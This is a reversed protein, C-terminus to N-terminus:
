SEIQSEIGSQKEFRKKSSRMEQIGKEFYEDYDWSSRERSEEFYTECYKEFFRILNDFLDDIYNEEVIIWDGAFMGNEYKTAATRNEMSAVNNPYHKKLKEYANETNHKLFIHIEHLLYLSGYGQLSKMKPKKKEKVLKNTFSEFNAFTFRKNNFGSKVMVLLICREVEVAIKQVFQCYLAKIVKVYKSRRRIGEMIAEARIDDYDDSCSTTAISNLYYADEAQKPSQLEGLLPKFENLWDEKLEKLFDRFINIRYEHRKVKSPIYCPSKQTLLGEPLFNKSGIENCAEKYRKVDISLRGEKKHIGWFEYRTPDSFNLSRKSELKSNTTKNM